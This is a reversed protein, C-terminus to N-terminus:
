WRKSFYTTMHDATREHHINFFNFCFFVILHFSKDALPWCLAVTPVFHQHQYSSVHAQWGGSVHRWACAHCLSQSWAARNLLEVCLAGSIDPTCFNGGVWARVWPFEVSTYLKFLFGMSPLSERWQSGSLGWRLWPREEKVGRRRTEPFIM